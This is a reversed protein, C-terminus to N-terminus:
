FLSENTRLLVKTDRFIFIFINLYVIFFYQYVNIRVNRMIDRFNVDRNKGRKYNASRNKIKSEISSM